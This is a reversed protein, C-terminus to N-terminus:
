TPPGRLTWNPARACAVADDSPVYPKIDLIPSGELADLGSVRLRCGEVSELKVVTLGIPNPRSPSRTAFVGMLPAGEHRRPVVQLTRRNEEDDRGHIWYLVILHSYAEVGLLGPRYEDYLRITSVDGESEVEGIFRIAAVGVVKM